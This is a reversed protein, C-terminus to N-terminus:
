TLSLSIAKSTALNMFLERRTNERYNPFDRFNALRVQALELRPLVNRM